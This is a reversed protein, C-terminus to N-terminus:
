RVCCMIHLWKIYLLKVKLPVTAHLKEGTEEKIRNLNDGFKIKCSKKFQTCPPQAQNKFNNRHPHRYTYTHTDAGLTNIVLPM